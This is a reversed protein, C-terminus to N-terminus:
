FSDEIKYLGAKQKILWTAAKLAGIAFIDRTLASHSITIIENENAFMIQHEGFVNGCRISSIGIESEQREGIGHRGVTIAQQPDINKAEAIADALMLATGSPSDKKHKHHTEVIEIDYDTLTTALNQALKKLINAGISTNSALIIPIVQSAESIKQQLEKSIGTTCIVLPTLTQSAAILLSALANPNSFDIIIDSNKAINIIEQQSSDRIIEGSLNYNTNKYIHATLLKGMRGNSGCVAINIM